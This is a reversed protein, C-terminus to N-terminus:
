AGAGTDGRLARNVANRVLPEKADSAAKLSAVAAPSGIRGLAM